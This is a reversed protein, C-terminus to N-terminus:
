LKLFRETRLRRRVHVEVLSNVVREIEAYLNPSAVLRDLREDPLDLSKAMLKLAGANSRIAYPDTALCRSCVGGGKVPNFGVEKGIQNQCDVCQTLVPRFGALSLFKLEFLRLMLDLRDPKEEKELRRWFNRLSYFGECNVDREKQCADVLETSVFARMIQDFNNHLTYFPEIVDFSNLRFIETKEKGFFILNGYIFPEIRGGIRSKPKVAGKAVAKIKGFRLTFFTVLRDAEGLRISRLALAPSEYLAM